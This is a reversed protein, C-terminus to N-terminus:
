WKYGVEMDTEYKKLADLNDFVKEFANVVDMMDDLMNPRHIHYFWIFKNRILEEATPADGSKYEIKSNYLHCSWPCNDKGYAIKKIFVPNQYMLKLYGSGVPIGEARLALLIKKREIGTAHADYILPFVHPVVDPHYSPVSIGPLHQLRDSLFIANETRVKNNEDLKELQAVGLAATLETMRFNMGVINSLSDDDWSDDPISEGHNRIMRLRKALLPDKTIVMGGEGTTINKTEQFSFVGMDGITGAYRGNHKTGPAQACDEIVKLNHQKAIKMIADMDAPNGLLHVVLIAKTKGTIAKEIKDADYGADGAFLLVEDKSLSGKDSMLRAHLAMYKSKDQYWAAVAAESAAVSVPGLIPFEKFVYRINGDDKLLKRISPFVKKCYPCRYDFFEVITINGKPNGGVPSGPNDELDKKLAKLNRTVAQRAQAEDKQRLAQISEVLVEPNRRLYDRVVAEVEKKQAASLGDGAARVGPSFFFPSAILLFFLILTPATKLKKYLARL